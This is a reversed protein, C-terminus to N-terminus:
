AGLCGQLHERGSDREIFRAEQSLDNPTKTMGIMTKPGCEVRGTSQNLSGTCGTQVPPGDVGCVISARRARNPKPPDPSPEGGKVGGM